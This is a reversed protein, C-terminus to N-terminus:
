CRFGQGDRRQPRYLGRGHCAEESAFAGFCTEHRTYGKLMQVVVGRPLHLLTVLRRCSMGFPGEQWLSDIFRNRLVQSSGHGFLADEDARGGGIVSFPKSGDVTGIDLLRGDSEFILSGRGLLESGAYGMGELAVGIEYRLLFVIRRVKQAIGICPDIVSAGGAGPRYLGRDIYVLCLALSTDASREVCREFLLESGHADLVHIGADRRKRFVPCVVGIEGIGADAEMLPQPILETGAEVLAAVLEPLPVVHDPHLM